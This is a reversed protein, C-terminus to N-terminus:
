VFGKSLGAEDLASPWAAVEGPSLEFAVPRAEGLAADAARAIRTLGEVLATRLGLGEAWATQEHPLRPEDLDPPFEEIAAELADEDSYGERTLDLVREAALTAQEDSYGAGEYDGLVGHLGLDALRQRPRFPEGERCRQWIADADDGFEPSEDFLAEYIEAAESRDEPEYEDDGVLELAEIKNM